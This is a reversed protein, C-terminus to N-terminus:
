RSDGASRENGCVTCRYKRSNGVKAGANHVRMGKGYKEDQYKAGRGQNDRCRFCSLIM